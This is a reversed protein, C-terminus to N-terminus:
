SMAWAISAAKARRASPTNLMTSSSGADGLSCIANAACRM